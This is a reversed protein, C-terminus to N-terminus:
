LDGSFARHLMSQFVDDLRKGSAAQQVGLERIERVRQAFQDQLALPPVLIPIRNLNAQNLKPQASGTVYDALNRLNLAACLFTLDANGNYTVVHAHNNVWYKGHAVFAIPTSRALLNAGDEGILLATEDFLYGEVYDIIGSAGYYPYEGRREARDAAKVPRRKGDKNRVLEGFPKIPWGWTNQAPDGFMEHFLAPILTATREDAQARLKRLEDAEDLLRVIRQQEALDPVPIKWDEITTKRISPPNSNSAFDLLDKTALLRFLFRSLLMDGPIVGMVNNDVCASQTLIRKKNTAIAAGVKPFIVTGPPLLTAGLQLRTEDSISHRAIQMNRENGLTNMDGVKFFPIAEDQLGQTEMPFGAGSKVEAIDGLRTLPANGKM